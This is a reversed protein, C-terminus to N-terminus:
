LEATDDIPAAITWAGAVSLAILSLLNSDADIRAIYGLSETAISCAM